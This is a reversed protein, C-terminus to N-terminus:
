KLPRIYKRRFFEQIERIAKKIEEMDAELKRLREEFSVPSIRVREERIGPYRREKGYITIFGYGGRPFLERRRKWVEVDSEIAKFIAEAEDLFSRILRQFLRFSYDEM